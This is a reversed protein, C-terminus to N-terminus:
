MLTRILFPLSSYIFIVFTFCIIIFVTKTKNVKLITSIYSSTYDIDNSIMLADQQKSLVVTHQEHEHEDYESCELRMNNMNVNNVDCKIEKCKGYLEKMKREGVGVSIEGKGRKWMEWYKRLLEGVVHHDDVEGDVVCVIYFEEVCMYYWMVADVCIKGEKGKMLQIVEHINDKSKYACEWEKPYMVYKFQKVKRGRYKGILVMRVTIEKNCKM